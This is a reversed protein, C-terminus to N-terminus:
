VRGTLRQTFSRRPSREDSSRPSGGEAIHVPKGMNGTKTPLVNAVGASHTKHKPTMPQELSSASSASSVSSRSSSRRHMPKSARTNIALGNNHTKHHVFGLKEFTTAFNADYPRPPGEYEQFAHRPRVISGFDTSTMMPLASLGHHQAALHHKEHIPITTHVHERQITEKYIVPQVFEHVHHHYHTGVVQPMQKRSHTHPLTVSTNRFLAAEAAVKAKTAEVNDKQHTVHRLPILNHTHVEPLIERHSVPQVTTHYHHQHVERDVAETSIEHRHTKITEWTVAPQVVEEVDTHHGRRSTHQAVFARAAEM